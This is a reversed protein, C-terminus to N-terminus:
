SLNIFCICPWTGKAWVTRHKGVHFYQSFSIHISSIRLFLIKWYLETVLTWTRTSCVCGAKVLWSLCTANANSIFCLQFEVDMVSLINLIQGKHSSKQSVLCNEFINHPSHWVLFCLKVISSFVTSIKDIYKNALFSVRSFSYHICSWVLSQIQDPSKIQEKICLPGFYQIHFTVLVLSEM